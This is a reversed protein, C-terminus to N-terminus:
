KNALTRVPFNRVQRKGEYLTVGVTPKKEDLLETQIIEEATAIAVADSTIHDGFEIRYSTGFQNPKTVGPIHSNINLLYKVGMMVGGHM